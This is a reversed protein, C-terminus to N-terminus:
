ASTLLALATSPSIRAALMGQVIHFWPATDPDWEETYPLGM